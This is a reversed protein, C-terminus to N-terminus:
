CECTNKPNLGNEYKKTRAKTILNFPLILM